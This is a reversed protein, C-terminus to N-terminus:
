KPYNSIIPFHDGLTRDGSRIGVQHSDGIERSSGAGNKRTLAADQPLLPEIWQRFHGADHRYIGPVAVPGHEIKVSKTSFIYRERLFLPTMPVPFDPTFGFIV